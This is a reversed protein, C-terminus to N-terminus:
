RRARAPWSRATTPPTAVGTRRAAPVRDLYPAYGVLDTAAALAAAARPTMLEPAGPGLGVIALRGTMLASGAPCSCSALFLGGADDPMDALPLIREDAMTGREVYIARELM